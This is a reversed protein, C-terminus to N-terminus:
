STPCEACASVCDVQFVYKVTPPLDAANANILCGPHLVAVDSCASFAGDSAWVEVFAIKSSKTCIATLNASKWTANVPEFAHCKTFAM